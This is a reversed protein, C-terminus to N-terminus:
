RILEWDYEGVPDTPCDFRLFSGRLVDLPAKERSHFPRVEFKPEGHDTIVVSEGSSEILLFYELAQAKFKSKSVHSQM